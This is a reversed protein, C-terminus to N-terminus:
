NYKGCWTITAAPYKGRNNPKAAVNIVIEDGQRVEIEVYTGQSDVEGNAEISRQASNSNNTVKMDNSDPSTLLYFRLKGTREAIYKYWHGDSDGASLNVTINTNMSAVTKNDWSGTPSSFIITFSKASSSNNGIEFLVYDSAQADEVM